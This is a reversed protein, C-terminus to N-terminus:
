LGGEGAEVSLNLMGLVSISICIEEKYEHRPLANVLKAPMWKFLPAISGRTKARFETEFRQSQRNRALKSSM